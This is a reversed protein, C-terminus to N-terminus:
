RFRTSQGVGQPTVRDGSSTRMQSATTGLSRASMLSDNLEALRLSIVYEYIAQMLAYRFGPRGDLFGRRLLYLTAFKAAPRGPVSQFVKKLARRRNTLDGSLLVQLDRRTLRQKSMEQAEFGAYKIHREFWHGVGKSLPLHIFHGNLRGVPGEVLAVPNVLREWRVFEPRFLRVFWCPYFSSHRIWKGGVYDKRRMEFAVSGGPEEVRGCIERWLEPTMREDADSYYVWPNPFPISSMAWNQHSSWDDFQRQVVRAGLARAIDVTRDSSYSDYVTVDIGSPFSAVAQELNQEENLTMIMVSPVM